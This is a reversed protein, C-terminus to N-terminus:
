FGELIGMSNKVVLNMYHLLQIADKVNWRHVM